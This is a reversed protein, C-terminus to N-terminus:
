NPLSSLASSYTRSEMWDLPFTLRFMAKDNFEYTDNLGWFIKIQKEPFNNNIQM